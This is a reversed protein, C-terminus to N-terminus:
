RPPRLPSASQAPANQQKSGADRVTAFTEFLKGVGAAKFVHLHWPRVCVLALHGGRELTRRHARCLLGLLACDFFEVPRLDIIVQAGHPATAAYTHAQIEGVNSLDIIGSLETVTINDVLYSRAHRSAAPLEQPAPRHQAPAPTADQIDIGTGPTLGGPLRPNAITPGDGLDPAVDM